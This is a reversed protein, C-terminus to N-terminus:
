FTMQWDERVNTAQVDMVQLILRANRRIMLVYVTLVGTLIVM